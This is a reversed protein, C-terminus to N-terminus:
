VDWRRLSAGEPRKLPIENVAEQNGSPSNLDEVEAGGKWQTYARSIGPDRWARGTTRASAAGAARYRRDAARKRRRLGPSAIAQNALGLEDAIRGYTNGLETYAESRAQYYDTWLADRDVNAKSQGEIRATRTRGTLDAIQTNISTLTDHYARNVEMQGANWSRLSMQQTRLVDSEGAGQAMAESLANARERGRNAVGETTKTDYDKSNDEGAKVLKQHGTRYERVLQADAINLRTTINTLHQRLSSHLGRPGLTRQLRRIDAQL